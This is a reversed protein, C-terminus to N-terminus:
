PGRCIANVYRRRRVQTGPTIKAVGATAHLAKVLEEDMGSLGHLVFPIDAFSGAVGGAGGGLPYGSAGTTFGHANGSIGVALSDPHRSRPSIARVM